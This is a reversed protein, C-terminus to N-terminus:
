DTTSPQSSMNNNGTFEAAQIAAAEGSTINYNIGGLGKQLIQLAMCAAVDNGVHIYSDWSIYKSSTILFAHLRKRSAVNGADWAASIKIRRVNGSLSAHGGGGRPNYRLDTCECLGVDSIM